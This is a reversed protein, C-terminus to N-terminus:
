QALAYLVYKRRATVPRCKPPVGDATGPGDTDYASQIFVQQRIDCFLRRVNLFLKCICRPYYTVNGGTRSTSITTALYTPHTFHVSVNEAGSSSLLEVATIHLTEKPAFTIENMVVNVRESSSQAPEESYKWTAYVGTVVVFLSAFLIVITRRLGRM